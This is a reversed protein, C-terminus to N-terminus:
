QGTSSLNTVVSLLSPIEGGNTLSFITGSKTGLETMAAVGLGTLQCFVQPLLIAAMVM